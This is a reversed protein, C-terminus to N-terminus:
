PISIIVDSEVATRAINLRDVVLPQHVAVEAVDDTNLNRFEVELRNAVEWTGSERMSEETSESGDDYGASAGEGILVSRPGLELVMRTVAETVRADTVAGSGSPAQKCVNPKVLVRSDGKVVGELGGALAVAERVAAEIKGQDVRSIAVRRATM